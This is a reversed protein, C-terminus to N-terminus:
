KVLIYNYKNLRSLNANIETKLGDKQNLILNFISINKIQVRM